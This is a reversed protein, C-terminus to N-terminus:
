KFQQSTKLYKYLPSANEGNVEIKSFMPYKVKYNKEAFDLIDKDSNPEQKGFQNCPFALIELGKPGYKDYIPTM